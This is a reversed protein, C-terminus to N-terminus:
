LKFVRFGFEEAEKLLQDSNRDKTILNEQSFIKGSGKQVIEIVKNAAEITDPDQDILLLDFDKGELKIRNLLDIIQNIQSSPSIVIIFSDIDSYDKEKDYPLGLDLEEGNVVEAIKHPIIKLSDKLNNSIVLYNTM